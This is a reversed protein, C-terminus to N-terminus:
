NVYNNTISVPQSPNHDAPGWTIILKSTPNLPFSTHSLIAPSNRRRELYKVRPGDEHKEDFDKRTDRLQEVEKSDCDAFGLLYLEEHFESLFDDPFSSSVIRYIQAYEARDM